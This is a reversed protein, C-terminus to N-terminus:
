RSRRQLLCTRNLWWEGVVCPNEPFHLGLSSLVREMLSGRQGTVTLLQSVQRVGQLLTTAQSM